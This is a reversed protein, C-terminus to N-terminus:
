NSAESAGITPNVQKRDLYPINSTWSWVGYGIGILLNIHDTIHALYNQLQCLVMVVVVIVVEPVVVVVVLM